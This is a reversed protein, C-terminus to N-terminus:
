NALVIAFHFEDKIVQAPRAREEIHETQFRPIQKGVLFERLETLFQAGGHFEM